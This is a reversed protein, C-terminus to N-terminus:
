IIILIFDKLLYIYSVHNGEYEPINAEDDTLNQDYELSLIKKMSNKM